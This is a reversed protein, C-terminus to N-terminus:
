SAASSIGMFWSEIATTSNLATVGHRAVHDSPDQALFAPDAIAGLVVGWFGLMIAAMAIWPGWGGGGYWDMMM